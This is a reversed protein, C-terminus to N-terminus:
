EEEECALGLPRGGRDFDDCGLIPIGPDVEDRIPLERGRDLEVALPDAARIGSWAWTLHEAAAAANEREVDAAAGLREYEVLEALRAAGVELLNAAAGERDLDVFGARHSARDLCAHTLSNGIRRCGRRCSLGGRGVLTSEVAIALETVVAAETATTRNTDLVAVAFTSASACFARVAERHTM